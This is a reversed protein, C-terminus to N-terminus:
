PVNRGQTESNSSTGPAVAPVAQTGPALTASELRAPTVVLLGITVATMAVATLGAALRRKPMAARYTAAAESLARPGPAPNTTELAPADHSAREPSPAFAQQTRVRTREAFGAMEAAVSMIEGRHIGLDRLTGDDLERLANYVAARERHQQYRQHARCAFAGVAAIAAAISEGVRRARHVRAARFMECGALTLSDTSRQMSTM